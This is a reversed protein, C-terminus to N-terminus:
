QNPAQLRITGTGTDECPGTQRSRREEVVRERRRCLFEPQDIFRPKSCVIVQGEGRTDATWADTVNSSAISGRAEYFVSSILISYNSIRQM